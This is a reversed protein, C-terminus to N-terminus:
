EEPPNHKGNDSAEKIIQKNSLRKELEDMRYDEYEALNKYQRFRVMEQLMQVSQFLLYNSYDCRDMTDIFEELIIGSDTDLLDLHLLTHPGDFGIAYQYLTSIFPIFKDTELLENFFEFLYSVQSYENIPKRNKLRRLAELARDSLWLDKYINKDPSKEGKLLEDCTVNFYEAIKVLVEIDPVRDENEYYGISASSVGIDEALKKRSIGKDKRLKVLMRAFTQRTSLKKM